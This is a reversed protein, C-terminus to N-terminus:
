GVCFGAGKALVASARYTDRSRFDCYPTYTIGDRVAYYLAVARGLSDSESGAAARAFAAVEPADSDVFPTASRWPSTDDGTM